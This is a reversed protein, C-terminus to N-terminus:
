TSISRSLEIQPASIIENTRGRKILRKLHREEVNNRNQFCICVYASKPTFNVKTIFIIWHLDSSDRVIVEDSNYDQLRSEEAVKRVVDDPWTSFM